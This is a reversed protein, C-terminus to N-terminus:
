RILRIEALDMESSLAKLTGDLSFLPPDFSADISVNQYVTKDQGKEAGL